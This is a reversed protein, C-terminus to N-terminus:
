RPPPFVTYNEIRYGLLRLAQAFNLAVNSRRLVAVIGLAKMRAVVQHLPNGDGVAAAVGERFPELAGLRRDRTQASGTRLDPVEARAESAVLPVPKVAAARFLRGTSADTVRYGDTQGVAHVAGSYRPKFARSHPGANALPARFGGAAKLAAARAEARAQNGRAAEAAEEKLQFRLASNGEVDEPAEGMLHMHPAANLGRVTAPLLEAWSRTGKAEMRKFLAQKMSQIARDLTALANHAQQDKVSHEIHEEALLDGFTRTFEPGGDTTLEVPHGGEERLIDAFAEAVAKPTKSILSRAYLLRSFVDQVALIYKHRGSPQATLDILDAFWRRDVDFATVRGGQTRHRTFIQGTAQRHVFAAVEGQPIRFGRRRVVAGLRAAGPYNLEEYLRALVGANPADAMVGRGKRSVDRPNPRPPPSM